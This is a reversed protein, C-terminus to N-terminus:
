NYADNIPFYVAPRQLHLSKLYAYKSVKRGLMESHARPYHLEASFIHLQRIKSLEGLLALSWGDWELVPSFHFVTFEQEQQLPLEVGGAAV